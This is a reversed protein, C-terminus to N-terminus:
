SVGDTTVRLARIKKSLQREWQPTNPQRRTRSINRRTHIEAGMEIAAALTCCYILTHLSDLTRADLEYEPWTETNSIYIAVALKKSPNMKPLQPRFLPNTDNYELSVRRLERISNDTLEANDEQNQDNQEDQMQAETSPRAQPTDNIQDNDELVIESNVQSIKREVERYQDAVIPETIQLNPYMRSFKVHLQQRYGVM